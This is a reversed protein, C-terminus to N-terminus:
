YLKAKDKWNQLQPIEWSCNKGEIPTYTTFMGRDAYIHLTAGTDIWCEMLNGVHNCESIITSLNMYPMGNSLADSENINARAQKKPKCCDVFRHGAKGCNYCKGKFKKSPKASHKMKKGKNNSEVQKLSQDGVRKNLNRIDEEIRLCIVLEEINM